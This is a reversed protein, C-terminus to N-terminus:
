KGPWGHEVDVTKLLKKVKAKIRQLCNDISKPDKDLIQAIEMYNFDSLYLELVNREFPSLNKQISSAMIERDEQSIMQDEPDADDSSLFKEYSGELDLWEGGKGNGENERLTAAVPADYSLATNLPQHKKRASSEVAHYLARDICVVAFTKFSAGKSADYDRLAKFLGLMGEQILDEKDAGQMHLSSAEKRVLGKYKEMLFDAADSDKSRSKEVLQEDTCNEYKEKKM